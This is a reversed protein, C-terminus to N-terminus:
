AHCFWLLFVAKRQHLSTTGTRVCFPELGGPTPDEAAIRLLAAGGMVGQLPTRLEHSMTALFRSKTEDSERSAAYARRLEAAVQRDQLHIGSLLRIVRRRFTVAIAAIALASAM